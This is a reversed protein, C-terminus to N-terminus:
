IIELITQYGSDHSVAKQVTLSERELNDFYFYMHVMYKGKVIPTRLYVIRTCMVTLSGPPKFCMINHTNPSIELM